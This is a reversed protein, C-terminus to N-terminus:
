AAPNLYIDCTFHDGPETEMPHTRVNGPDTVETCLVAYTDEPQGLIDPPLTWSGPPIRFSVNSSADTYGVATVDGSESALEVAADPITTDHCTAYYNTDLFGPPCLRYYVEILGTEADPLDGALDYIEPIFYIDCTVPSSHYQLNLPYLLPVGPHDASSCFRWVRAGHLEGTPDIELTFDPVDVSAKGNDDTTVEADYRNASIYFLADSVANGFCADHFASRAIPQDCSRARITLTLDLEDPPNARGSSPFLIQECSVNMGVEIQVPYDIPDDGETCTVPGHAAFHGPIGADLAYQGPLVVFSAGDGEMSEEFFKVQDSARSLTAM